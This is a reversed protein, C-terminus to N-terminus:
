DPTPRSVSQVVFVDFPGRGSELKLGLQEQLATFISAGESLTTANPAAAGDTGSSWQLDINFTGTLGTRDVVPRGVLSQLSTALNQMTRTGATLFQRTAMMMCAPRVGTPAVPSPGGAGIQPRGEALWKDCDVDSRELQPGLAGDKRARVLEYLPLDRTERGVVLGFRDMLLAQLMVRTDRDSPATGPPYTANIDFRTSFTWDPMGILQHDLLQYAHLVIFRLPVNEVTFRGPTPGSIRGAQAASENQKVSAVEFAPGPTQGFSPAGAGLILLALAASSRM